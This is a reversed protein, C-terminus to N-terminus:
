AHYTAELISLVKAEAQTCARGTIRDLVDLAKAIRGDRDRAEAVKEAYHAEIVAALHAAFRDRIVLPLDRTRVDEGAGILVTRCTCAAEHNRDLKVDTFYWTHAALLGVLADRDARAVTPASVKDVEASLAALRKELAERAAEREPAVPEDPLWEPRNEYM